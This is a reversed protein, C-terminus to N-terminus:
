SINEWTFPTDEKIDSIIKKGIVLDIYKPEIGSNSRKISIKNRKIIEDKKMSVKATLYRRVVNRIEIESSKPIKIGDGKFAEIERIQKILKKLNEPEISFGHDPGELKKDLTFHKELINAGVSVAILDVFTSEGNDSYGVIRGFKKKLSDMALLNVNIPETPYEVVSHLLALKNNEEREIWNIAEQIENITSAGTSLIIPLQKKAIFQILPMNIIDSSAIKYCPVGLKFLYDVSENDYPTSFFTLGCSKSFDHIEGFEDLSLEANKFFKFYPNTKVIFEETKYTQFKIADTNADSAAQVLKKAVKVDGNHNLGAEAIVYTPHNAGIKKSGIKIEHCIDNM